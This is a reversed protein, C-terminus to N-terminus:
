FFYFFERVQVSASGGTGMQRLATFGGSRAVHENPLTYVLLPQQGSSMWWMQTFIFYFSLPKYHYYYYCIYHIYYLSIYIESELGSECVKCAGDSSGAIMLQQQADFTLSKVTAGHEFATFTHRLQRQRVDWLCIQGNRGGSVITSSSSMYLLCSAGETHCPWGIIYLHQYYLLSSSV